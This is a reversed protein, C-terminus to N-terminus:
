FWSSVPDIVTIGSAIIELSLGFSPFLELLPSKIM